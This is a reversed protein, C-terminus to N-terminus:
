GGEEAFSKLAQYNTEHVKKSHEEEQNEEQTSTESQEVEVGNEDQKITYASVDKGEKEKEEFLQGPHERQDGRKRQGQGEAPQARGM